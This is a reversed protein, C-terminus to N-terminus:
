NDIKSVVFSRRTSTSGSAAITLRLDSSEFRGRAPRPEFRYRTWGNRGMISRDSWSRKKFAVAPPPGLCPGGYQWGMSRIQGPVGLLDRHNPVSQRAWPGGAHPSGLRSPLARLRYTHPRSHGPTSTRPLELQMPASAKVDFREGVFQHMWRYILKCKKFLSSTAPVVISTVQVGGEANPSSRM